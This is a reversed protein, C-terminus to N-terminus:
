LKQSETLFLIKIDFVYRRDTRKNRYTFCIKHLHSITLHNM